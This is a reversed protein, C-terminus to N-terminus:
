LNRFTGHLYLLTPAQPDVNPLWWFQVQDSGLDVKYELDGPQLGAFGAPRGPTPRYVLERQKTDLWACGFLTSVIGCIVANRLAFRLTAAAPLRFSVVIAGMFNRALGLGEASTRAMTM